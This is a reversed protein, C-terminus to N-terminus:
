QALTNGQKDIYLWATSEWSTHEGELISECTYAVKAKGGEFPFACAYQPTIVIEGKENAYGIKKDKQIRFLGEAVIDPGNDFRYVEFLEQENRNIGLMQGKKDIVIAFEKLTDTYCYAYKGIPIITDGELNAYGSEVGVEDFDGKYVKVLYDHKKQCSATLLIALLITVRNLRMEVYTDPLAYVAYYRVRLLVLLCLGPKNQEKM